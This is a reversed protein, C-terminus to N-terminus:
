IANIYEHINYLMYFIYHIFYKTQWVFLQIQFTYSLSKATM